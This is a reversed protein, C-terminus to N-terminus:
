AAAGTGPAWGAVLLGVLVAANVLVSGITSFVPFARPFLATAALSVLASAVAISRYWDHGGVM